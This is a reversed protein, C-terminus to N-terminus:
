RTPGAAAGGDSNPVLFQIDLTYCRQAQQLARPTQLSFLKKLVKTCLLRPELLRTNQISKEARHPHALLPLLLDCVPVYISLPVLQVSCELAQVTVLDTPIHCPIVWPM